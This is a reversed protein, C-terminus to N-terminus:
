KYRNKLVEWIYNDSKKVLWNEEDCCEQFKRLLIDLIHSNWPPAYNQGLDFMLDDLDPGPGDDCEYVQVDDVSASQHAVFDIDQTIGFEDKLLRQAEGQWVTLM